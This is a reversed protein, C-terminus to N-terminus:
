AEEKGAEAAILDRGSKAGATRLRWEIEKVLEPNEEDAERQRRKGWYNGDSTLLPSEELSVQLLDLVTQDKETRLNVDAKHELLLRVTQLDRRLVAHALPAYKYYDVRNVNAGYEVLLRICSHSDTLLIPPESVTPAADPDAGYELLLRMIQEEKFYTALYLLSINGAVANPSGGACLWRHVQEANRKSEEEARKKDREERERWVQREFAISRFARWFDPRYYQPISRQQYRAIAEEESQQMKRAWIAKLADNTVGDGVFLGSYLPNSIFYLVTESDSGIFQLSLYERDDLLGGEDIERKGTTCYVWDILASIFAFLYVLPRSIVYLCFSFIRKLIRKKAM